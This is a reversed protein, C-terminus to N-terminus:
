SGLRGFGLGHEGGQEHRARGRVGPGDGAIGEARELPLLEFGAAGGESGPEALGAERGAFDGGQLGLHNVDNSLHTL